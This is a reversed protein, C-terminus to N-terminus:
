GGAEKKAGMGEGGAGSAEVALRETLQLALREQLAPGVAELAQCVLWAPIARMLAEIDEERVLQRRRTAIDEADMLDPNPAAGPKGVTYELVLKAAATDGQLARTVLMTALVGLNSENVAESFAQRLAAARRMFPNGPGGKNGKAFRGRDDRGEGQKAM